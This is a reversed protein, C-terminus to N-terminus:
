CLSCGGSTQDKGGTVGQIYTHTYIYIYINCIKTAVASLLEMVLAGYCKVCLVHNTFVALALISGGSYWLKGVFHSQVGDTSVCM